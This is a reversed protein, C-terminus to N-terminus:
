RSLFPAFGTMEFAQTQIAHATSNLADFGDSGIGLAVKLPRQGAPMEIFDAIKESLFEVPSAMESKLYDNLGAIMGKGAQGVPGYAEWIDERASTEVNKGFDTGFSGAQIIVTDIGLSYVESNVGMAMAEFAAKSAGYM